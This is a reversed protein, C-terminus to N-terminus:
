REFKRDLEDQPIRWAVPRGHPCSYSNECQFLRKVIDAAEVDSLRRNMRVSSHCAMTAIVSNRYKDELIAGSAGLEEFNMLNELVDRTLEPIDAEALIAPVGKVVVNASKTGNGVGLVFGLAELIDKNERVFGVTDATLDLNEAVLLNQVEVGKDRYESLLKEFRVREAAAHQDIILLEEGIAAVIYRNLFQHAKVEVDGEGSFIKEQAEDSLGTEERAKAADIERDSVASASYGSGAAADRLIAKSFELSQKVGYSKASPASGVERSEGGGLKSKVNEDRFRDFERDENSRYADKGLQKEYAKKVAQEVASFVRYPNAFRVESKRPHVNVDVSSKPMQIALIFPLRKGEPIFRSAGTSVAKAVGRDWIPRKNVFVFQHKARSGHHKPHAVVGGVKMVEGGDYFVDVFEMDKLIEQVRQPHISGADAGKITPLNYVKRGDSEFIFHIEPHILAVPLFTQVLHRFETQPTKLFKRRAPVNHFLNEVTVTTGVDRSAPEPEPDERSQVVFAIPDKSESHRSTIKTEAVSSISALAEGRFGMTDVNTLDEISEVKSTTHSEMAILLDDKPMGVGDDAVEIKDIGGKSIRITIKTPSADIANDLLEKLVSAPREVVEGAAIQDIVKPDLKKIPM